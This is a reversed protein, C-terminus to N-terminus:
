EVSRHPVVANSDESRGNEVIDKHDPSIMSDCPQPLEQHQCLLLLPITQILLDITLHVESLTPGKCLAHRESRLITETMCYVTIWGRLYNHNGYFRGAGSIRSLDNCVVRLYNEWALWSISPEQIPRLSGSYTIDILLIIRNIYQAHAHTM